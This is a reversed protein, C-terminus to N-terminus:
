EYVEGGNIRYDILIVLGIQPCHRLGHRLGGSSGFVKINM